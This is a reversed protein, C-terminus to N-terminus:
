EREPNLVVTDEADVDERARGNEDVDIDWEMAEKMMELNDELGKAQDPAKRRREAVISSWEVQERRLAQLRRDLNEDFQEVDTLDPRAWSSLLPSTDYSHQTPGGLDMFVRDCERESWKEFEIGNVQLNRAISKFAQNM